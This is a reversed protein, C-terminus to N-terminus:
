KTPNLTKSLPHCRNCNTGMHPAETLDTSGCTPCRESIYREAIEQFAKSHHYYMQFVPNRVWTMFAMETIENEKEKPCEIWYQILEGTKMEIVNKIKCGQVSQVLVKFDYALDYKVTLCLTEM